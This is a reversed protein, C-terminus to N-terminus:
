LVADIRSRAGDLEAIVGDIEARRAESEALEASVFSRYPAIASSIRTESRDMERAFAAGLGEQLDARLRAVEQRLAEAAKRRRYPLVALGLAALAGGALIGTVDLSTLAILLGGLGLAGVELMATQALADQVGRQLRESEGAPDFDAIARESARAVSDLLARRRETFSEGGDRAIARLADESARDELRTRMASWQAADQEVLWDVLGEIERAIGAPADAIVEREFDEKLRDGDLLGRLRTLRMREDLFAEGRERLASAQADVRALRSQFAEDMETRHAAMTREIGRLAARDSELVRRKAEASSKAEGAVREAVGIPSELKLRLRERASLAEETWALFRAWDEPPPEGREQARRAARASLPFVVPDDGVVRRAQDRVFGLVQQREAPDSLLDIKNIGFVIKKGWARILDLFQRESETFPRDASTVFLILDARPVFDRTLAEHERLVANTGPTDVIHLERLLPAPLARRLVGDVTRTAGEEGPELVQVLSTTPTVGEELFAGELLANILASKGANYEGTVVLLLLEDLGAIAERLRAPGDPAGGSETARLLGRLAHRIEEVLATQAASLPSKM